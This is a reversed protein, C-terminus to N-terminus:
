AAGRVIAELEDLMAPDRYADPPVEISLGRVHTSAGAISAVIGRATAPDNPIVTQRLLTALTERDPLAQASVGSASETRQLSVLLSPRARLALAHSWISSVSVKRKETWVSYRPLRELDGVEPFWERTRPHLNFTHLLAAVEPKGERMRLLLKDDGLVQWGRRVFAATLTTKGGGTPACFLACIGQKVVAAAHIPTWGDRRWGTTLVLSLVDELEELKGAAILESSVDIRWREGSPDLTASAHAGSTTTARLGAPSRDVLMRACRLFEGHAPEERAEVEAAVISVPRFPPDWTLDYLSLTEAIKEYLDDSRARITLELPGCHFTGAIVRDQAAPLGGNM